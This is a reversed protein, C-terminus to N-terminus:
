RENNAEEMVPVPHERLFRVFVITGMGIVVVAAAFTAVVGADLEEIVYLLLGGVGIVYLIGIAYLRNYELFAAGLGFSLLLILITAIPAVLHVFITEASPGGFGYRQMGITVMLLLVTLGVCIFNVVITKTRRAKAQPGPKIQGMRPRTIFQRGIGYLAWAGFALVAYIVLPWPAEIDSRLVMGCIAVVLLILGLYIDLLGDEFRRSWTKRELKKLDIITNM